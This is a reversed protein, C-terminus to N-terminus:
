AMPTKLNGTKEPIGRNRRKDQLAVASCGSSEQRDHEEYTQSDLIM